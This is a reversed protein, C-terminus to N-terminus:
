FENEEESEEESEEEESEEEESEDGSEEGLCSGNECKPDQMGQEGILQYSYCKSCFNNGCNICQWFGHWGCDECLVLKYEGNKCIRYTNFLFEIDESTTDEESNEEYNEEYGEESKSM